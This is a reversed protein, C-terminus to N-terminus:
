RLVLQRHRALRVHARVVQPVRRRPHERAVLLVPGREIEDGGRRLLVLLLLVLMLLLMLLVVGVPVILM